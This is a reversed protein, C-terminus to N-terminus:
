RRDGYQSHQDRRLLLRGQPHGAGDERQGGGGATPGSESHVDGQRSRRRVYRNCM